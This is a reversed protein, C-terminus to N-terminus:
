RVLLKQTYVGENTKLRLIYLGIPLDDQRISAPLEVNGNSYVLQGTMNFIEVQDIKTASNAQDIHFINASSWISFPLGAHEQIGVEQFHVVFRGTEAGGQSTFVLGSTNRINLVTNTTKDEFFLPQGPAFSEIGGFAIKYSGATGTHVEVPVSVFDPQTNISLKAQDTAKTWIQPYADNGLLKWADRSGDFGATSGSLVNVFAEDYHNTDATNEIKLSIVDSLADTSKYYPLMSHLRSGAPITMSAGTANSKVFFGQMAPIIGDKLAGISGNWSVYKSGNWTYVAYDLNTKVWNGQDWQIASPYPNGVLNLGRTDAQGGANYALNSFIINGSSFPGQFTVTAPVTGSVRYGLGAELNDSASLAAWSSNSELYKEAVNSGFASATAGSVPSSVLHASNFSGFDLYRGFKNVGSGSVSGRVLLSGTGSSVSELKLNGNNAYDRNVTLSFDPSLNVTTGSNITLFKCVANSLVTVTGTEIVANTSDGPIGNSWNAATIWPGTGNWRSEGSGQSPTVQANVFQVGTMINYASDILLCRTTDFTLQTAGGLYHFYIDFVVTNDPINLKNGTPELWNTSYEVANAGFFWQSSPMLTSFNLTTDYVMSTNSYSIHLEIGTVGKGGAAGNLGTVSVPLHVDTGPNQLLASGLTVTIQSQGNLYIFLALLTILVKKMNNEM